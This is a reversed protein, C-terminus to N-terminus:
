KYLSAKSLQIISKDIVIDDSCTGYEKSKVNLLLQRIKLKYYTLWHDSWWKCLRSSLNAANLDVIALSRNVQDHASRFSIQTTSRGAMEWCISIIAYNKRTM